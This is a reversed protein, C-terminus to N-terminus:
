STYHARFHQPMFWFLVRALPFEAPPMATPFHEYANRIQQQFDTM